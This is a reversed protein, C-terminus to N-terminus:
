TEHSLNDKFFERAEDCYYYRANLYNLAAQAGTIDSLHKGLLTEKIGDIVSILNETLDKADELKSQM